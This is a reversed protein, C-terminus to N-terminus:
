VRLALRLRAFCEAADLRERVADIDIFHADDPVPLGCARYTTAHRSEYLVTFKETWRTRLGYHRILQLFVRDCIPGLSQPMMAWAPLIFAASKALAICSTDVHTKSLDESDTLRLHERGEVFIHRHSFVADVPSSAFATVISSIHEELYLNDADLFCIIDAGENLACIAGIGRPTDGGDNHATPLSIHRIRGDSDALPEKLPSGDAVLYHLVRPHTQKSVSDCCRQLKWRPESCYPTVVAVLPDSSLKSADLLM